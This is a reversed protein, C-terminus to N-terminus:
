RRCSRLSTGYLHFKAGECLGDESTKIVTLDGRKLINSFTVTAPQGSVVTLRRIEQPEYKKDTLESVIYIGPMLNDIQIQGGNKTQFIKDIGAGQVRFSVGDVKGDESTKVIKASGYSVKVNLFGKVPDNM